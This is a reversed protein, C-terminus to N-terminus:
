KSLFNYKENSLLGMTHLQEICQYDRHLFAKLNARGLASLHTDYTKNEKLHEVTSINFFLKLDDALTETTLVAIVNETDCTNLFDGIYFDIDEKIHHIYDHEKSFLHINEALTNVTGYKKLLDFEGVFRNKQVQDDCVLKYRWNFASIFRDIPNRLLLVYQKTADYTVQTIHKLEFPIHAKSFAEIVSSGGCKGVHIFVFSPPIHFSTEQM